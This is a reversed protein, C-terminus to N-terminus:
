LDKLLLAVATIHIRDFPDRNDHKVSLTERCCVRTSHKNSLLVHIESRMCFKM